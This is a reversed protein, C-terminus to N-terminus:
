HAIYRRKSERTVSLGVKEMFELTSEYM